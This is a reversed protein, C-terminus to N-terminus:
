SRDPAKKEPTALAKEKSSWDDLLKIIQDKMERPTKGKSFYKDLEASTIIVKIEEKKMEGLIGDIIDGNLQKKEDLQRMRQAQSLSPSSNGDISVAILNQNRRSIFSIEVASTFGLRKEDMAKIMDPVLETLRIFRQVQKSNMNNREGVLEISRKGVDGSAVGKFRAGQHKIAEYQMKLSLARESPLIESRQRLNDDTMALVAEDDTMNRIICPMEIYGALKSAHDRRNGCVLEYGGEKRPRALAPTNVGNDKVSEILAKMEVDDRVGFPHNKPTHLETHKLYVVKEEENSRPAKKPQPLPEPKPPETKQTEKKPVTTKVANSKDGTIVVKKNIVSVTKEQKPPTSANGTKETKVNQEKAPKASKEATVPKSVSVNKESSKEEQTIPANKKEPEASKMKGAKALDIVETDPKSGFLKTV